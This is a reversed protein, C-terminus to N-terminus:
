NVLKAREIDSMAANAKQQVAGPGATFQATSKSSHGSSEGVVFM